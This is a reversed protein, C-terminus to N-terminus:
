FLEKIMCDMALTGYWYQNDRTLEPIHHGWGNGTPDIDMAREEQAIQLVTCDELPKLLDSTVWWEPNLTVVGTGEMTQADDLIIVLSTEM